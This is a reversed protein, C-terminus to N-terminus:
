KESKPKFVVNLVSTLIYFLILVAFVGALGLGSVLLGKEIISM